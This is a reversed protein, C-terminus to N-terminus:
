PSELAALSTDFPCRTASISTGVRQQCLVLASYKEVSWLLTHVLVGQSTASVLTNTQGRTAIGLPMPWGCVYTGESLNQDALGTNWPVVLEPLM